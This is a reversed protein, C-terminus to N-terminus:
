AAFIDIARESRIVIARHGPLLDADCASLNNAVELAVAPELDVADSRM